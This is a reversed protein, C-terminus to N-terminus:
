KNLIRSLRDTVIINPVFSGVNVDHLDGTQTPIHGSTAMQQDPLAQPSLPKQSLPLSM